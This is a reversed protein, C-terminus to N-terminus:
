DSRSRKVKRSSYFHGVLSGEDDVAEYFREPNLV